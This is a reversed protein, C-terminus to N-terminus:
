NAFQTRAQATTRPARRALMDRQRESALQSAPYPNMQIM